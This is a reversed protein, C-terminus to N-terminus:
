SKDIWCVKTVLLGNSGLSVLCGLTELKWTGVSVGTEEAKSALPPALAHQAPVPAIPPSAKSPAPQSNTGQSALNGEDAIDGPVTTSEGDDDSDKMKFPFFM